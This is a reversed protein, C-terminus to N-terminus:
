MNLVLGSSKAKRFAVFALGLLGTGLLLSSPEPTATPIATLSFSVQGLDNSTLDINYLTDTDGFGQMWGNGLITWNNNASNYSATGGEIEFDFNGATSNFYTEGVTWTNVPNTFTVSDGGLGAFSGSSNGLVFAPNDITLSTSTALAGGTVNLIGTISTASARPVIALATALALLALSFKKM